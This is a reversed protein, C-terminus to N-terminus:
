GFGPRHLGSEEWDEDEPDLEAVIAALDATSDQTLRSALERRLEAARAPGYLGTWITLQRDMKADLDDPV